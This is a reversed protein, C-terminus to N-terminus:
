FHVRTHTHIDIGRGTKETWYLARPYQNIELNM